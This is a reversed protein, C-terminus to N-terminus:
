YPIETKTWGLKRLAEQLKKGEEVQSEDESIFDLSDEVCTDDFGLPIIKFNYSNATALFEDYEPSGEEIGSEISFGVINNDASWFLYEKILQGTIMDTM